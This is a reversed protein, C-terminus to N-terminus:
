VQFEGEVGRVELDMFHSDATYTHVVQEVLMWNQIKRDGLSLQVKVYSGGRVKYYGLCGKLSLKRTIKDYKELIKKSEAKIEASKTGTAKETYQLIGWRKQHNTSNRIFVERVGKKNDDRYLKVRNYTNGDITSEYDYDVMTDKDILLPLKMNAADTLRLRGFDDWLVFTKKTHKHTLDSANGLIDFLTGEEMRRKIVYKTNAILGCSLKYKGAIDKVLHSYTKNKYSMVDKNTFYRLQDYCTLQYLNDGSRTFTFVYGFFVNKGNRKFRVPSGKAIRLVSDKYVTVTLKGPTNKRAYEVVIEGELIPEYIAGDTQILMENGASKLNKRTRLSSDQDGLKGATYVVETKTIAKTKPVKEGEKSSAKNKARISGKHSVGSAGTFRSATDGYRVYNRPNRDVGNFRLEFHLHPGFSHGTSGILAIVQGASVRDGASVKLVSCHAYRSTIKHGHDLYVQKGYTGKWGAQKVIGARTALIKNGSPTAIDDGMHRGYSRPVGWPSSIRSSSPVPWIYNGM